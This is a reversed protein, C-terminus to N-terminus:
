KISVSIRVVSGDWRPKDRNVDSLLGGLARDKRDDAVLCRIADYSADLPNGRLSSLYQRRAGLRSTLHASDTVHMLPTSM